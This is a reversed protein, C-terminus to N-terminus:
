SDKSRECLLPDVSFLITGESELLICANNNQFMKLSEKAIEQDYEDLHILYNTVGYRIGM